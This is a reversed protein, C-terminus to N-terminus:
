NRMIFIKKVIMKLLWFFNDLTKNELMFKIDNQRKHTKYKVGITVM